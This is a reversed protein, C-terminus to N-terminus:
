VSLSPPFTLAKNGWPQFRYCAPSAALPRENPRTEGMEKKIFALREGFGLEPAVQAQSMEKSIWQSIMVARSPSGLVSPSRQRHRLVKDREFMYLNSYNKCVIIEENQPSMGTCFPIGVM